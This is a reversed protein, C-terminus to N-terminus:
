VSSDTFSIFSFAVDSCPFSFALWLKAPLYAKFRSFPFSFAIALPRGFHHHPSLHGTKQFLLTFHCCYLSFPKCSHQCRPNKVWLRFFNFYTIALSIATCPTDNWSVKTGFPHLTGRKVIKLTPAWSSDVFWLGTFKIICIPLIVAPLALFALLPCLFVRQLSSLSLTDRVMSLSTQGNIGAREWHIIINNKCIGNQTESDTFNMQKQNKIAVLTM